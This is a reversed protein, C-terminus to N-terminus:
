LMAGAPKEGTIRAATGTRAGYRRGHDSSAHNKRGNTEEQETGTAIKTREVTYLLACPSDAKKKIRNSNVGVQFISFFPSYDCGHAIYVFDIPFPIAIM